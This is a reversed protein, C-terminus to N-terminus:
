QFRQIPKTTAAARFGLGGPPLVTSLGPACWMTADSLSQWHLVML